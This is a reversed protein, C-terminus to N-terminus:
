QNDELLRQKIHKNQKELRNIKFVCFGLLLMYGLLYFIIIQIFNSSNNALIHEIFKNKFLTLIFFWVLSMVMVVIALKYRLVIKKNKTIRRKLYAQTSKSYM